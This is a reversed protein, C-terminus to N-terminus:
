RSQAGQCSVAGLRDFQGPSASDSKDESTERNRPRLLVGDPDIAYPRVLILPYALRVPATGAVSHDLSRVGSKIYSCRPSLRAEASPNLCM